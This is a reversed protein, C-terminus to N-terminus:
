SGKWTLFTSSSLNQAASKLFDYLPFLSLLFCFLPVYSGLLTFHLWTLYWLCLSCRIYPLHYGLTAPHDTRLIDVWTVSNLLTVAALYFWQLASILSTFDLCLPPFNCVFTHPKQQYLVGIFQPDYASVFVFIVFGCMCQQYGASILPNGGEPLSVTEINPTCFGLGISIKALFVFNCASQAASWLWLISTTQGKISVRM